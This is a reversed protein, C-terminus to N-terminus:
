PETPANVVDRGQSKEGSSATEGGSKGVMALARQPSVSWVHDTGGRDSVFYIRGDGGWTPQANLFKGGTLKVRATSDVSTIWLDADKPRRFASPDTGARITSYAIWQGDPSWSANVTATGKAGVIETLNGADNPKYDITWLSFARDGRERSRQFLIRDRSESGTGAVPCWQPFMGFGIFEAVQPKSVEVTWLEWRGSTQGLRCFALRNGDPSWTPHLEHSSTGTIQLPQGGTTPMVYINWYGSRNSAFAIRAGDPSIAPMVDSAPDATLQTVTRGGVPKIYLDPNPSHQTSAFVMFKGDRSVRPDFDSGDASFTQQALQELGDLALAAVPEEPYATRPDFPRQAPDAPGGDHALLLGQTTSYIYDTTLAEGAAQNQALPDKGQAGAQTPAANQAPKPAPEPSRSATQVPESQCASLCAACVLLAALRLSAAPSHTHPNM